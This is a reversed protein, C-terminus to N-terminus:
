YDFDNPSNVRAILDEMTVIFEQSHAAALSHGSLIDNGMNGTLQDDWNVWVVKPSSVQTYLIMNIEHTEGPYSSNKDLKKRMVIKRIVNSGPEKDYPMIKAPDKVLYGNNMAFNKVEEIPDGPGGGSRDTNTPTQPPPPPNSSPPSNKKDLFNGTPDYFETLNQSNQKCNVIDILKRMPNMTNGESTFFINKM